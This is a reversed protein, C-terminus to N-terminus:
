KSSAIRITGGEPADVQVEAVAQLRAPDGILHPTMSRTVFDALAQASEYTKATATVRVPQNPKERQNLWSAAEILIPPTTTASVALTRGPAMAPLEHASFVMLPGEPTDLRYASVKFGQGVFNRKNGAKDKAELVYSYTLGPVVPAGGQSRGDWAIERPPEGQGSYTAVTEGRANVIALKWSSVGQLDPRFRAVAGSAFHSLWPHAVYPSPEHASQMVLSTTLDPVTRDLVDRASGWDLGPATSPDLEVKLEPRDFDLRIRDEGEVTLSKFVTGEQGGHMTMTSDEGSSHSAASSPTPADPDSVTVSAGALGPTTSRASRTTRAHARTSTGTAKGAAATGPKAPTTTGTTAAATTGTTTGAKTGTAAGTTTGTAAAAPTALAVCLAFM